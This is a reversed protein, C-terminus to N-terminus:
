KQVQMKPTLEKSQSQLTTAFFGDRLLNLKSFNLILFHSCDVVNRVIVGVSLQAARSCSGSSRSSSSSSSQSHTSAARSAVGGGGGGGIGLVRTGGCDDITIGTGRSSDSTSGVAAGSLLITPVKYRFM